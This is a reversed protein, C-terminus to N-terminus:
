DMGLVSVRSDAHWIARHVYASDDSLLFAAAAACTAAPDPDALLRAKYLSARAEPTLNALLPSDVLPPLLLNLRLGAPGNQLLNVVDGKAAAYAVQGANGRHGVQSGILLGRAEPAFAKARDLAGLLQAHAGVNIARIKDWAAESVRPLADDHNLGAVFAFGIFPAQALAAQALAQVQAHDELDCLQFSAQIGAAGAEAVLTQLTEPHRGSL